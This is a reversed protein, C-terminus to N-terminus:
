SRIGGSARGNAVSKRKHGSPKTDPAGTDARGSRVAPPRISAYPAHQERWPRLVVWWTAVSAILGLTFVVPRWDLDTFLEPPMQAVTLILLWTV